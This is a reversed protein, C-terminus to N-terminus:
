SVFVFPNEICISYALWIAANFCTSLAIFLSIFRPDRTAIVERMKELPALCSSISLFAAIIGCAFAPCFGAFFLIVLPVTILFQGIETLTKKTFVYIM